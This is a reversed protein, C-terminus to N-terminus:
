RGQGLDGFLRDAIIQQCRHSDWERESLFLINEFEKLLLMYSVRGIVIIYTYAIKNIGIM